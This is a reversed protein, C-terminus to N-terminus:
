QPKVLQNRAERLEELQEQRGSQQAFDIMRDYSAVVFEEVLQPPLSELQSLLGEHASTLEQEAEELKGQKLLAEGLVSQANFLRWDDAALLERALDLSEEASAQADSYKELQIDCLALYILMGRLSSRLEPVGQTRQWECLERISTSAEDFRELRYKALALNAPIPTSYTEDKGLAALMEDQIEQLVGLAKEADGLQSYNDALNNQIRWREFPDEDEGLSELLEEYNERAQAAQGNASYAAALNNLSANLEPNGADLLERRLRLVDEFIPISLSSNGQLDYAMALNNATTLTDPHSEGLEKKRMTWVRQYHVIANEMDGLADFCSGLLDEANLTIPHDEGLFKTARDLADAHIKLADELQGNDQMAKALNSLTVITTPHSEGFQVEMTAVLKRLSEIAETENGLAQNLTAQNNVAKLTVPHLEGLSEKLGPMIEDYIQKAREYGQPRQQLATALNMRTELTIPDEAGQLKQRGSVVEQLLAIADDIQGARQYSLALNNQATLTLPNDIGLTNIFSELAQQQLEIGKSIEGNQSTASALSSLAVLYNEDEETGSKLFLETARELLVIASDFEGLNLWTEGIGQSAIAEAQPRDSFVRPIEKEAVRLAEVVKVNIGLGGFQGAPRATALINNVLFEAYAVQDAKADLAQSTALEAVKRQENAQEASQLAEKQAVRLDDNSKELEQQKSRLQASFILLGVTTVLILAAATTAITQHRRVWRQVRKYWPDPLAVVAEDALFREIDEAMEAASAYRDEIELSMAKSCIMAIPKWLGSALRSNVKLVSPLDGKAVRQLVKGVDVSKEDSPKGADAPTQGSLVYFLTAGLSYIDAAPGIKDLRGAAQEPSMFAPTGVVSGMETQAVGSGSIPQLIPESVEEIEAQEGMAKALGWDVVLTEGYPGLLINDPKLDRHLIGRSHAYEVTQCVHVFRNLLKRLTLSQDSTYSGQVNGLQLKQSAEKLSEGRIFRMAYFPRGDKRVGLGYVPVVGPHELGGTVEAELMFRARASEDDAFQSRIEKLAVQRKLEDDQAVSVKGLGGRAHPRLIRFRVNPGEILSQEEMTAYLDNSAGPTEVSANRLHSLSQEIDTDAITGLETYLAAVDAPHRWGVSDNASSSETEPSVAEAVANPSGTQSVSNTSQTEGLQSLLLKQQSDIFGNELLIDELKRGKDHMWQSMCKLLDSQEVFELQFAMLGVVLNRDAKGSM